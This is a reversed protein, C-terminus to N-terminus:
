KSYKHVLDVVSDFYSMDLGVMFSEHGAHIESYHVVPWSQNASIADLTWRNDNVDALEDEQGVFM